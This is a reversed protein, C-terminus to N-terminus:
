RRDPARNCGAPRRSAVVGRGRAARLRTRRWRRQRSRHAQPPEAARRARGRPQLALGFEVLMCASTTSPAAGSPIPDRTSSLRSSGRSEFQVFNAATVYGELWWTRRRWRVWGATLTRTHGAPCARGSSRRGCSSRIPSVPRARVRVARVRSAAMAGATTVGRWSSPMRHRRRTFMDVCGGLAVACVRRAAAALEARSRMMGSRWSSRAVPVPRAPSRPLRAGPQRPEAQRAPITAACWNQRTRWWTRPCRRASAPRGRRHDPQAGPDRAGRGHRGARAAPRQSRRRPRARRDALDPYLPRAAAM